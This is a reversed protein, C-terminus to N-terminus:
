WLPDQLIQLCQTNLLTKRNRGKYEEIEDLMVSSSEMSYTFVNELFIKNIKKKKFVWLFSANYIGLYSSHRM